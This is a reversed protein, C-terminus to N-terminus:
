GDAEEEDTTRKREEAIRKAEKAKQKNELRRQKRFLRRAVEKPSLSERHVEVVSRLLFEELQLLTDRDTTLSTMLYLINGLVRSHVSWGYTQSGELLKDRLENAANSTYGAGSEDRLTIALVSGLTIVSDVNSVQSILKVTKQSWMSWPFKPYVVTAHMTRWRMIFKAWANRREMEQMKELSVNAVHCGMAHATYSHGHLLADTKDDSLFADFISQSAITTCLPLLGGTLLKANVTIDPHVQLFSASSFRGLRYLGTFVEDFVVPLGSWELSSGDATSSASTISSAPPAFLKSKRVVDVLARQFLPDVFIMGGAGLLVPEMVLAGFKKGKFKILWNLMGEIYQEYKSANRSKLDFVADLSHYYQAPGFEAEMGAPPEVYWNGKRMKVQPYDFWYGRGRYWEVKKNYVSPESADMAGITDGHYSGKLGIIGIDTSSSEWGYRVSSAKLAMKIGVEIGTSGNDSFFVKKLRPNKFGLLLREALSLAPQHVAGAFMVHGYRGAAYAAALSLDPNGHGLGQTWWSASGDFTPELVPTPVASIAVKRTKMDEGGLSLELHTPAKWKAPSYAQFFDGYASDFTLISSKDRDKHQTFPHWIASDARSAMGEIDKIRRSQRSVLHIILRSISDSQSVTEYYHLLNLRVESRDGSDPFKPLEFVPVKRFRFYKTLYDANGLQGSEFLLIAEVDYGRLTLSEYASITAAIGGLRHDGVLVVPLRLPRYLDAQLTGFPGPSLVGGATEILVVGYRRPEKPVAQSYELLAASVEHLVEQDTPPINFCDRAAIHPSVPLKFEFLCKTTIGTYRHVYSHDAEIEPGTSVPKLYNIRWYPFKSKFATGLITSVVTKGSGTNAGYIQVPILKHWLSSSVAGAASTM